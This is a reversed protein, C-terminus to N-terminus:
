SKRPFIAKINNAALAVTERIRKQRTEGRKASQIWQLIGKKSSPSFAAFYHAAQPNQALAAALDAPIVLAEVEDLVSWSGDSRAQEIKATGAASMLGQAILREVREKNTKSWPSGPRRPSLLLMTRQEDLKAARSDIWGFCLAEEVVANYSVHPLGSRKKYTILWISGTRTHNAVLWARWQERSTIEVQEFDAM